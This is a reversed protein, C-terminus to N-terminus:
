AMWKMRTLEHLVKKKTAFRGLDSRHRRMTSTKLYCVILFVCGTPSMQTTLENYLSRGVLMWATLPIRVRLELLSAAASTFSLDCPWLTRSKSSASSCLWKIQESFRQWKHRDQETRQTIYKWLVSIFASSQNDNEFM